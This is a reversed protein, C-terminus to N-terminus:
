EHKYRVYKEDANYDNSGNTNNDMELVLLQSIDSLDFYTCLRILTSADFRSPDKCFNKITSPQLGTAEALAIQTLNNKRMLEKLTTTIRM